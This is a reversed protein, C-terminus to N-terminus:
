KFGGLGVPTNGTAQPQLAISGSHQPYRVRGHLPAWLLFLWLWTDLATGRPGGWQGLCAGAPGQTVPAQGPTAQELRRDGRGLGEPAYVLM